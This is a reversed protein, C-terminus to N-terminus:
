GSATLEEYDHGHAVAVVVILLTFIMLAAATWFPATVHVKLLLAMGCGKGAIRALTSISDSVGLIGGQQSSASRRSILAQLAPVVFGLGSIVVTLATILWAFGGWKPHTAVAMLVYGVIAIVGGFLTLSLESWRKALQRVIGGQVICQVVGVYVFVWMIAGLNSRAGATTHAIANHEGGLVSQIALSLTAELNALSFVGLFATLLLLGMSPIMIAARLSTWNFYSHSKPASESHLSEPLKFIALVLAAGSLLAAAYGPAGLDDSFRLALVGILPGFTFGLGFAAGILAMGRARNERTTVDAIYAQATSFTAGAIGAGVRSLILGSLSHWRMSLGFLAYCTTSGVLSLLLIPRRGVRDSLRGWLPSFIFQMVSFSVTIVILLAAIQNNSLHDDAGLQETYIPLLPLVIGFGMLDIVVTLFVLLLATRPPKAPM